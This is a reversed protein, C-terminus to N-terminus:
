EFIQAVRLTFGPLVDGGDLDDNEGLIRATRDPTYVSVTRNSPHVLWVLQVGADVYELVKNNVDASSDSPSVIEVVLDPALELFSRREDRQPLRNTRVFAIDPSRVIDPNRSLIFGTDSSYGKGLKHEALFNGIHRALEFGIEGHEGGAPPMRVLEGKALERRCGDDPMQWLDEATMLKTTAM